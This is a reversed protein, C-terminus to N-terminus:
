RRARRPLPSVSGPEGCHTCESETLGDAAISVTRTGTEISEGQEALEAWVGVSDTYHTDDGAGTVAKLTTELWTTVELPSSLVETPALSRRAAADARQTEIVHGHWHLGLQQWNNPNHSSTAM